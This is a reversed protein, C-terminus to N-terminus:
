IWHLVSACLVKKARNTALVLVPVRPYHKQVRRLCYQEEECFLNEQIKLESYGRKRLRKELETRPCTLVVVYDVNLKTECSLHGEVIVPGKELALKQNIAKGLKPVDVEWEKSTRDKKGIGSKRAFTKELVIKAHLKKRLEMALETKGAGPTGTLLLRLPHEVKIKAKKKTKKEM